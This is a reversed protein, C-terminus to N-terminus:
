RMKANWWADRRDKESLQSLPPLVRPPSESSRILVEGIPSLELGEKIALLLEADNNVTKSWKLSFASSITLPFM